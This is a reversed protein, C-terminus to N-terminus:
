ALRMNRLRRSLFPLLLGASLMLPLPLEPVPLAPPPVLSIAINTLHNFDPGNQSTFKITTSTSSPTFSFIERTWNAQTNQTSFILNGGLYADLLTADSPNTNADSAVYPAEWDFSFYWTHGITLGSVSQFISGPSSPGMELSKGAISNTGSPNYILENIVHTYTTDGSQTWHSLNGTAFNGNLVLNNAMASGGALMGFAFLIAASKARFDSKMGPKM